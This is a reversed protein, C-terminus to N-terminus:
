EGKKNKDTESMLEATRERVGELSELESLEDMSVSSTRDSALPDSAMIGEFERNGEALAADMEQQASAAGTSEAFMDDDGQGGRLTNDAIVQERAMEAKAVSRAVDNRDFAVKAEVGNMKALAGMQMAVIPQLLKSIDFSWTGKRFGEMLLNNTMMEIPAGDKFVEMLPITARPDKIKGWIYEAAEDLETFRPPRESSASGPPKTLSMGPITGSQFAADALTQKGDTVM